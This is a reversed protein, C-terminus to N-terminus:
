KKLQKNIYQISTYHREITRILLDAIARAPTPFYGSDVSWEQYELTYQYGNITQNQILCAYDPFCLLGEGATLAICDYKYHSNAGTIANAIKAGSPSGDELLTYCLYTNFAGVGLSELKKGQERSCTFKESDFSNM